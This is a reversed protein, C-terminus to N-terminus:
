PEKVAQYVASFDHDGLGMSRAKKFVENAAAAVPMSVGVDDGLALALRMDKQQHKLPFAPPFKQQIMAPGKLKFMPNGIGGLELVDLLTQQSLGSKDTLVLGESFANVMSGMIMNVVLKMKAGNGVDGLFFTKKGMVDFAPMVEDHLSKDGAALIILQGDEAPKKSGSVPAEVFRGGKSIIGEYIKTSTAADVTSMDIYGKGSCMEELVGGKDFVVSLAAPPDALMAITYKCKKVVEAPTNGVSAGYAVLEECKSLTRNWVTVNFGSKLLNVAMAKGMIGLGLFGLEM